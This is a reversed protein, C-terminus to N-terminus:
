LNTHYIFINIIIFYFYKKGVSFIIPPNAFSVEIKVRKRLSNRYMEAVEKLMTRLATAITPNTYSFPVQDMVCNALEIAM